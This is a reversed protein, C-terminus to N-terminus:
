AGAARSLAGGYLSVLREACREQTFEALARARGAAGFAAVRDTDSSLAVLAAALADADGPPVLLGTEGAVVIEPLGGVDSAVVARGREMAELAVMGFGEGLSPVAVIAAREYVAQPPAVRGLLRVADDLDLSAVLSRIQAHLPGDGAVELELGPVADRALAIARLLTEHGKIEVLRGVCAIRPKGPLPPPDAGGDIGYHVIEFSSEDFGETSALYHALGHSIAINLDALRAVGRDAPGFGRRSRFPNFGHKTSVRV